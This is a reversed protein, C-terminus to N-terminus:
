GLPEERRARRDFVAVQEAGAARVAEVARDYAFGVYEPVHADSSLVIPKGAGVCM